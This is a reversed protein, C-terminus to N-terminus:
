QKSPEDSLNHVAGFPQWGECWVLRSGTLSSDDVVGVSTM